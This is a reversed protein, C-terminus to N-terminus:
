PFVPFGLCDIFIYTLRLFILQLYYKAQIFSLDSCITPSALQLRASSDLRRRLATGLQRLTTTSSHRATSTAPFWDIAWACQDDAARLPQMRPQRPTM